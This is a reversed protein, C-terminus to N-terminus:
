RAFEFQIFFDSVRGSDRNTDIRAGARRGDAGSATPAEAAKAHKYAQGRGMVSRAVALARLLLTGAALAPV